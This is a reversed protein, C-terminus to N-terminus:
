MVKAAKLDWCYFIEIVSLELLQNILVWGILNQTITLEIDGLVQAM